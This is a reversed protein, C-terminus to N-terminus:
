RTRPAAGLQRCAAMVHSCTVGLVHPVGCTCVETMLPEAACAHDASIDVSHEAQGLAASSDAGSRSSVLGTDMDTGRVDLQLSKDWAAAWRKHQRPPLTENYKFAGSPDKALYKAKLSAYM